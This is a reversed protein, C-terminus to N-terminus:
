ADYRRPASAGGPAQYLAGLPAEAGRTFWSDESPRRGMASFKGQRKTEAHAYSAIM